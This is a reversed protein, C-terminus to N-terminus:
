TVILRLLCADVQTSCLQVHTWWCSNILVCDWQAEGVCVDKYGDLAAFTCRGAHQVIARADVLLQQDARLGV